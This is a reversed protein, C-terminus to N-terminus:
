RAPPDAPNGRRRRARREWGVAIALVILIAIIWITWGAATM